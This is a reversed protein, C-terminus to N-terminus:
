SADGAAPLEVVFRAGAVAGPVPGPINEAWVRGKHQEIIQRVISLGLGSNGGFAAGKPRQTYFRAFITELNEGPVGPGADDVHARFWRGDRRVEETVYVTVDGEHPSFSKANDILNRFVQGLPGEQGIVICQGPTGSRFLVAVEG